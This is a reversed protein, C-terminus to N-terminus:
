DREWEDDEAYDECDTVVPDQEHDKGCKVIFWQRYSGPGGPYEDCDWVAWKCDQCLDDMRGGM